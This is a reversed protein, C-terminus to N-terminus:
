KVILLKRTASFDDTKLMYFYVGAAVKEGVVNRGDWYAARDRGIYYGAHKHGLALQRVVVGQVNYITLSVDAAKALQYPIWTEPNFPNPYNPLLTSIIPILQSRTVEASPALMADIIIVEDESYELRYGYNFGSPDSVGTIYVVVSGNTNDTNPTITLTESEATGVLITASNAGGTISGGRKGFTVQINYPAGTAIVFKFQGDAVKEVAVEFLFDNEENEDDEGLELRDLSTLGVFIGDPLATLKNGRLSLEELSTLTSFIGSLLSTLSAGQIDLFVLNTLTNFINVPLSAFPNEGIDLYNLTTLADFIGEPLSTLENKSLNLRELSTLPDFIGVTLSTLGIGSISLRKLSTFGDFVGDPLTGLNNGFITLTELSPLQSLVSPFSTFKNGDLQLQLLSTLEDLIDEPITELNNDSLNLVTLGTLGEFDGDKLSSIGDYTLDLYTIKALQEDTVDDPNTVDPIAAVIADRVAPVREALPTTTVLGFDDINITVTITDRGGRGDTVTITVTYSQKTEYDLADKTKLQGTTSVIDFVNDDPTEGLSYTLTDNDADTAAVPTKINGGAATNEAVSRSTISGETFVPARNPPIEIVNSVNITVTISASGDKSDSVTITVQYSSKTEFDLADKTRLQGTTSVIDFATDDPTEGLSYTLTDNDADTATVPTGINRGSATNEVVTRTTISGETFVPARNPQIEDVDDINITVTISASGDKSDSVTITVQYSSKTEFDLADKTRLQGTTSVIDFATDDPTEGLSYTLTDNDADTAAVPTKINGGAATNEAVTRTTISGETFVPANNSVTDTPTEDVDSVIITVTISASEGSSDSVSITVSYSPKTEFDLAANTQLQGSSTNFSFSGADVGGLSYTLTDDSDADTAAVPTGINEGAAINEVVYRITSTGETFVPARNPQIEDVDDINITVTISASGDNGDTVTIEVTYVSTIEYDLTSNTQLQGSGSDISFSGADTGDLSYTLVDNDEDIATVPDGINEDSTTNEAITRTTSTGETFVPANNPADIDKPVEDRDTINIVVDISATLKGDSVTVKVSYSPKTEFDLAVKTKLQGTAPNIAFAAADIGGLSYTLKDDDPDTAAVARGINVDAHTNEPITRTTSTGETFMPSRNEDVDTINIVVDISATLKGDSVTVKVSYSPKTEFDLAVKTKLQGTAPNIAFAAADIGGLSYTLKDDDPDTAAVVSGINVDAHTNEPITRTTSTDETFVPSRNEDMDTINIVVDISATLSGDSVTVKVSYSTKTEFDLPNKTKLQGTATDIAFTSDDTDDLSYTLTDDNPDTAAVADGINTEAATNEAVSRTASIGETFVPPRNEVVDTVNIVVDVSATLVGDSVTVIVSYISKTEYDLAAKTKLQGSETDIDFAAVDTGDLSYVLGDMNADAATIAAEINVGAETNEAITRTTSTGETFVPAVNIRPIVEIPLADSKVLAYGAHLPPLSPLADIDVTVADITGSTRTVTLIESEVSGQPITISDIGDVISGSTTTFTLSIDFPAGTHAVAKFAGEGVQELTVHLPLPDVSNGSLELSELSVIGEFIGDPLDMLKNGRLSITRLSFLRDFLKDPLSTLENNDLYLTTLSLMGSFDHTRLSQIDMNVLNLNTIIALDVNAVNQCHMLLPYMAEIASVLEPTRNCATSRALVYGYHNRPLGPLKGIDVSPAEATPVITFTESKLTGKLVTATTAGESIHGNTVDIPVVIDFPAGTPVIVQFENEDVQQLSVLIPMPDLLNHGLRLTTLATLGEFIGVPLDMLLNDHLNINKLETMGSFDGSKLETIGADRLDLVSIAAIQADTIDEIDPRAIIDGEVLVNDVIEDRVQSTRESLPLSLVVFDTEAIDILRIVVAITDTLQGDSATVSVLYLSKQEYDLAVKTQLQGTETDIIFAAADIGSLTYTLPDNTNDDIDAEADTDIATIPAGINVDAATNEAITRVTITGDTFMPAFNDAVDTVNITVTITDTLLGDSVAVTVSYFIKTEYDLDVKTKLQGTDRDIGFLAADIGGLSYTLTDGTDMDIATIPTGINEDTETNEDVNLTVSVGDTFMPAVNGTIAVIPLTGSKNLMYGFHNRPINPITGIDITVDLRSDPTKTVTITDSVTSGKSITLTTADGAIVGNTVNIPLVINFPASELAVARFQGEEVKELTITFPLPDVTNGGLRLSSLATLGEFIGEPLSSLQNDYLNLSTLGTLGSFDGPKLEVIGASRLNLNTIAALQTATIEDASNAETIVAVIADRIQPTRESVPIIDSYSVSHIGFFILLVIVVSLICKRRIFKLKKM